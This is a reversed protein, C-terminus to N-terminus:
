HDIETSKLKSYVEDETLTEFNVSELIASVKVEWVRRDLAHLLKLARELDNYPLQPKNTRM